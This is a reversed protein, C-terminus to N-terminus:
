GNIIFETNNLDIKLKTNVCGARFKFFMQLDIFGDSTPNVGLLRIFEAHQNLIRYHKKEYDIYNQEAKCKVFIHYSDVGQVCIIKYDHENYQSILFGDMAPMEFQAQDILVKVIDFRAADIMARTIVIEKRQLIKSM